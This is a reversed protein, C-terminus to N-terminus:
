RFSRISSADLVARDMTRAPPSTRMPAVQTRAGKIADNKWVEAAVKTTLPKATQKGSSAAAATGIPRRVRESLKERRDTVSM